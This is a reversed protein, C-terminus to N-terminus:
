RHRSQKYGLHSKDIQTSLIKCFGQTFLLINASPHPAPQRLGDRPVPRYEAPSGLIRSNLCPKRFAVPDAKRIIMRASHEADAWAIPHNWRGAYKMEQFRTKM